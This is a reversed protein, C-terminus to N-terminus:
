AGRSEKGSRNTIEGLTMAVETGIGDMGVEQAACRVRIETFERAWRHKMAREDGGRWNLQGAMDYNEAGGVGRNTQLRAQQHGATGSKTRRGWVRGKATHIGSNERACKELGGLGGKKLCDAM